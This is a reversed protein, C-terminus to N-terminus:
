WLIMGMIGGAYQVIKYVVFGALLKPHTYFLKLNPRAPNLQKYGRRRHKRLYAKMYKGYYFAKRFIKLLTDDEHLHYERAEIWATKFGNSDLRHQFDEEMSIIDEDFRGLIEWARKNFFRASEIFTGIYSERELAKVTGWFHHVRKDTLVSMYVADYGEDMKKMCQSIFDKDRTMDSGTLYIYDGKAKAIGYNAQSVRETGTIYIKHAFERAISRTSDTSFNDVVIIEKNPYDQEKISALSEYIFEESNKTPVVVSVMRNM